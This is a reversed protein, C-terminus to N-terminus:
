KAHEHFLNGRIYLLERIHQDKNCAVTPAHTRYRLGGKPISLAAARDMTGGLSSGISITKSRPSTVGPRPEARQPWGLYHTLKEQARLYGARTAPWADHGGGKDVDSAFRSASTSVYSLPSLPSPMPILIWFGLGLYTATAFQRPLPATSCSPTM